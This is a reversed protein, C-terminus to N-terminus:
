LATGRELSQRIELTYKDFSRKLRKNFAENTSNISEANGTDSAVHAEAKRKLRSESSAAHRLEVDAAVRNIGAKTTAAAGQTSFEHHAGSSSGHVLSSSSGMGGVAGGGVAGPLKAVRKEYAAFQKEHVDYAKGQTEKNHAKRAAKAALAEADAATLALESSAVRAGWGAGAVAAAAAAAGGAGEGDGKLKLMALRQLDAKKEQQRQKADYGSDQARRFEHEVEKKNAKRSQNIQLRLNFLRREAATMNQPPEAPQEQEREQEQVQVQQQNDRHGDPKNKGEPDDALSPPPQSSLYPNHKPLKEPGTQTPAPNSSPAAAAAAVTPMEPEQQGCAVVKVTQLPVDNKGTRVGEIIKLVRLGQTVRGFVVHRGNLHPAAKFTIFFQSGNTHAGSNAMSLLAPRDHKVTFNEDKFSKGYISTGGTGDQNTIDGGQAMFGPIIRHFISNAFTLRTGAAGTCLARFNEATKPVVDAFLEIELRGIPNQGVSLDFWVVPNSM